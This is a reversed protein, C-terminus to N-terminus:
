YDDGDSSVNDNTTLQEIRPTIRYIRRGAYKEYRGFTDHSAFRIQIGSSSSAASLARSSSRSPLDGEV